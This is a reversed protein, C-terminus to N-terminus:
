FVWWATLLLVGNISKSGPKEGCRIVLKHQIKSTDNGGEGGIDMVM